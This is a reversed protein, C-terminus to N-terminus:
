ALLRDVLPTWVARRDETVAFAGYGPQRAVWAVGDPGMAFAATAFADAYTLSPGVVTMSLLGRSPLGTRPDVIHTGREYTGSTAVAADRVALVRAVRDAELPHRIGVRWPRGPAPEGRVAIDGGANIAFSEAGAFGLLRAAREVAWGKVIGTPDPRGDIRHRRADFFGSSLRRVDECLGLLDALEPSVDSEDIDGRILRSVESDANFPSFREDIERLDAFAAEVVSSPVAPWVVHIGIVTGMIREVRRM